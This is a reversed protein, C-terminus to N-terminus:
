STGQSHHQYNLILDYLSYRTSDDKDELLDIMEEM